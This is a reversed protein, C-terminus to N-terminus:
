VTVKRPASHRRMVQIFGIGSPRAPSGYLCTPLELVESLPDGRQGVTGAGVDGGAQNAM